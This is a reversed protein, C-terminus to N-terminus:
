QCGIVVRAMRDREKVCQGAILQALQRRITDLVQQQGEMRRAFVSDQRANAQELAALRRSPPLTQFGLTTVITALVGLVWWGRQLGPLVDAAKHRSSSVTLAPAAAGGRPRRLRAPSM